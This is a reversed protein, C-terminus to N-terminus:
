IPVRGTKTFEWLWRPRALGEPAFRVMARWDMREPIAPSGWDRGQAFSRDLTMILGVAGAARAREMRQALV